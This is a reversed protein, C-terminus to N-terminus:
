IESEAVVRRLRPQFYCGSETLYQYEIEAIPKRGQEKLNNFTEVFTESTGSIRNNDVLIFTGKQSGKEHEKIEVKAEKM